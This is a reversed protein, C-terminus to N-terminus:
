SNQLAQSITDLIQQADQIVTQDAYASRKIKRELINSLQASENFIAIKNAQDLTSFSNMSRNLFELRELFDLYYPAVSFLKVKLQHVWASLLPFDIRKLAKKIRAFEGNYWAARFLTPNLELRDLGEQINRILVAKNFQEFTHMVSSREKELDVNDGAPPLQNISMRMLNELLNVNNMPLTCMAYIGNSMESKLRYYLNLINTENAHRILEAPSVTRNDVLNAPAVLPVDMIGAGTVLASSGLLSLFLLSKM